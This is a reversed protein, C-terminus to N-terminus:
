SIPGVPRPRRFVVAHASGHVVLGPPTPDLGDIRLGYPLPPLPIPFRLTPLLQSLVISPVVIGAVAVARMRLWVRGDEGVSLLAEGSMTALSSIGPIPMSMSAVLRTGDHALLLTPMRALRTLDAWPIVINGAVGECPLESVRRGIVARLPLYVNHLRANLGAGEVDGFRLATGTVEVDGYRGRIAQTLFPEGHVRVTAPGGLPVALYEAARREAQRAIAQDSAALAVFAVVLIALVVLLALV